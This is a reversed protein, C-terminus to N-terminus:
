STRVHLKWTPDFALAQLHSKTPISNWRRTSARISTWYHLPPLITHMLHWLACIEAKITVWIDQDLQTSSHLTPSVFDGMRDMACSIWTINSYLTCPIWYVINVVDQFTGWFEELTAKLIYLISDFTDLTACFWRDQGHNM